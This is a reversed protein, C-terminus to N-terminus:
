IPCQSLGLFFFLNNTVFAANQHSKWINLVVCKLTLSLATLSLARECLGGDVCMTSENFFFPTM